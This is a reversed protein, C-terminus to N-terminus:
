MTLTRRKHISGAYPLGAFPAVWLSATTMKIPRNVLSVPSPDVEVSTEIVHLPQERGNPLHRGRRDAPAILDVSRRGQKVWFSARTFRGSALGAHGCRFQPRRRACSETRRVRATIGGGSDEHIDCFPVAAPGVDKVARKIEDNHLREV